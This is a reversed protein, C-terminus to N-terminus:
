QQGGAPADIRFATIGSRATAGRLTLRHQKNSCHQVLVTETGAPQPEYASVYQPYTKWTVQFGAPLELKKYQLCWALHWDAPEIVVRGSRSVFREDSFGEGDDGTVSGAVRFHVRKGDATSDPLCTLTWDEAVPAQAFSVQKIAPMWMKPATSPRSAAWCRRRGVLPEDDLLVEVAESGGGGSIAVVRNGSFPLTLSGDAQTQVAPVAASVSTVTGAQPTTQLGPVALLEPAICDALQKVGADNLHVSDRLLATPELSHEKVHAIWKKRVDILMCDYRKAIDRIAVIRADEDPQTDLTDRANLHSTWLVIEATTRRRVNRIIEEYKDVPGYVHFVLLDPYWPYLDHEATRILAPSQFGGIAPKHFIFKASPFRDVLDQQVLKTWAQATISQGYFMWRITAPKAPTSAAARGMTRQIFAVSPNGQEAARVWGPSGGHICALLLPVVVCSSKM